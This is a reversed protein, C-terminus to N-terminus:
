SAGEAPGSVLDGLGIEDAGFLCLSDSKAIRRTGECTANTTEGRGKMIAKGVSSTEIATGLNLLQPDSKLDRLLPISLNLVADEQTPVHFDAPM